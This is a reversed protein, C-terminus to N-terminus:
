KLETTSQKLLPAHLGWLRSPSARPSSNLPVTWILPESCASGPSFKGEKKRPHSRKAPIGRLLFTGGRLTSAEPSASGTGSEMWPDPLQHENFLDLLLSPCNHWPEANGWFKDPLQWGSGKGQWQGPYLVFWMGMGLDRTCSPVIWIDDKSHHKGMMWCWLTKARGRDKQSVPLEAESSVGPLFGFRRDADLLPSMSRWLPKHLRWLAHIKSWPFSLSFTADEEEPTM